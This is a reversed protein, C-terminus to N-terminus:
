QRLGTGSLVIGRGAGDGDRILYQRRIDRGRFGISKLLASEGLGKRHLMRIFLSGILFILLAARAVASSLIMSPFRKGCPSATERETGCITLSSARHRLETTM